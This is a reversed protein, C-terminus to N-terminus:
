LIQKVGEESLPLVPQSLVELGLPPMLSVRSIVMPSVLTMSLESLSLNCSMWVLTLSRFELNCSIRLSCTKWLTHRM